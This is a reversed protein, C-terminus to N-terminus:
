GLAVCRLFHAEREFAQAAQQVKKRTRPNEYYRLYASTWDLTCRMKGKSSRSPDRACRRAPGKHM